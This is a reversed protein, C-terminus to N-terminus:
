GQGRSSPLAARPVGQGALVRPLNLSVRPRHSRIRQFAAVPGAARQDGIKRIGDERLWHASRPGLSRLASISAAGPPVPL